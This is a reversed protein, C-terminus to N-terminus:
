LRLLLQVGTGDFSREFFVSRLTRRLQCNNVRLSSIEPWDEVKEVANKLVPLESLGLFSCSVNTNVVEKGLQKM